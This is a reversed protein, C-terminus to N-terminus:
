FIMEKLTCRKVRRMYNEYEKDFEERMKEGIPIRIEDLLEIDRGVNKIYFMNVLYGRHCRLFERNEMELYWEGFSCDSLRYEKKAHIYLKTYKGYAKIYSIERMFIKEIKHKYRCFVMQEQELSDNVMMAMLGQFEKYSFPKQLFGYVNKGFANQMQDLKKSVFAIRTETKLKYLIEKILFADIRGVDTGLFLVDPFDEVLLSEGSAYEKVIYDIYKDNFFLKCFGLIQSRGSKENDCIAIRLM